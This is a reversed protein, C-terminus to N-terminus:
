RRGSIRYIAGCESCKIATRRECLIAEAGGDEDKCDLPNGCGECQEGVHKVADGDRLGRLDIEFTERGVKVTTSMPKLKM